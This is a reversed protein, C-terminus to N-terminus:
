AKVREKSVFAEDLLSYARELEERPNGKKTVLGMADTNRRRYHKLAVEVTVYRVDGTEVLVAIPLEDNLDFALAPRAEKPWGLIMRALEADTLTADM